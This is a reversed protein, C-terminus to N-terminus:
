VYNPECRLYCEGINGRAVAEGKLDKTQQCIRLDRTHYELAKNPMGGDLYLRGLNNCIRAQEKLDGAKSARLLSKRWEKLHHKNM